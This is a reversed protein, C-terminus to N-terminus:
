HYALFHKVKANLMRIVGSTQKVSIALEEVLDLDVNVNVM